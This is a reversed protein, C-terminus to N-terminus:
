GTGRPKLRYLKLWLPNRICLTKDEQLVRHGLQRAGLLCHFFGIGQSQVGSGNCADNTLLFASGKACSTAAQITQSNPHFGAGIHYFSCDDVSLQQKHLMTHFM